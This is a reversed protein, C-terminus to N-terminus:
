CLCNTSYMKTIVANGANWLNQYKLKENIGKVM